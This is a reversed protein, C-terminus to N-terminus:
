YPPGSRPSRDRGKTCRSTSCGGLEKATEPRKAPDKELCSLIIRELEPTWRATNRRRSPRSPCTSTSCSASARAGFRSSGPSSRTSSSASRTSTPATISRAGWASSPRWTAPRGWRRAPRRPRPGAPQRAAQRDRLRAGQRVLGRAGAGRDLHEGAQSRPPRDGRPAGGRARRLDAAAPPADRQRTLDAAELRDALNAGELYEMVFFPRADALTGFSFIDIINPHGIKNVARAEEVFRRVLDPIHACHEALVKVAVRKGIVPHHGAYVSGM